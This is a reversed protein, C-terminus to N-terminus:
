LKPRRPAANGRLLQAQDTPIPARPQQVGADGTRAECSDCPSSTSGSTIRSRPCIVADRSRRSGPGPAAGACAARRQDRGAHRSGGRGPDDAVAPLPGRRAAAACQRERCIASGAPVRQAAHGAACAARDGACRAIGKIRALGSGARWLRFWRPRDAASTRRGSARTGGALDGPRREHRYVRRAHNPGSLGRRLM